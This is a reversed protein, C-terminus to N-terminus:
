NKSAYQFIILHAQIMVLTRRHKAHDLTNHSCIVKQFTERYFLNTNSLM